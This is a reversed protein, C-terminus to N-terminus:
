SRSPSTTTSIQPRLLLGATVLAVIKVLEVGIYVVHISSGPAAGAMVAATRQALAPMILVHQVALAAIPLATLWRWRARSGIAAIVLVAAVGWQVLHSISFTAQGVELATSLSLSAAEFKAPTAIFSVGFALGAWLLCLTKSAALAIRDV